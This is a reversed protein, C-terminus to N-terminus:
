CVSCVPLPPPPPHFHRPRGCRPTGGRRATGAARRSPPRRSRSRPNPRMTADSFSAGFINTFYPIFHILPPVLRCYSRARGAVERLPEEGAMACYVQESQVGAPPAVVGCYADPSAALGAARGSGVAILIGLATIPSVSTNPPAFALATPSDGARSVGASVGGFLTCRGARLFCGTPTTPHPCADSNVSKSVKDSLLKFFCLADVLLNEACFVHTSHDRSTIAHSGGPGGRL